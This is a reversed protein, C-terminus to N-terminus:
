VEKLPGSRSSSAGTRRAHVRVSPASMDVAFAVRGFLEDAGDVVDDRDDCIEHLAREIPRRGALAQSHVIADLGHVSRLCLILSVLSLYISVHSICTWRAQM